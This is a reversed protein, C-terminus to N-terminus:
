IYLRYIFIRLSISSLIRNKKMQDKIVPNTQEVTALGESVAETRLLEHM